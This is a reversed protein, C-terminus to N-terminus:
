EYLTSYDGEATAAGPKVQKGYPFAVLDEATLGELIEVYSGWLDKGTRVTRKELKGDAGRIYVFATGNEKRLFPNQLYVGHEGTGASYLVSVYRGEQLDASEDVFVRFPYYSANPNGMGNYYGDSTPFDGISDVIGVYTMGTNWDNVTVEQGLILNDKELESVFGEVYFGGGGSVKLIPQLTAKAEDETLLSVVEGDIQAYVNGDGAETQAIKYNAEAMKIDFELQTIKKKQDDRMQAIQAATFGSGFDIGTNVSSDEEGGGLTHDGILTDAFRFQFGSGKGSFRLCQWTTKTALERDGSTIKIVVYFSHVEFPTYGSGAGEEPVEEGNEAEQEAKAQANENQFVEAHYRVEEVIADKLDMGSHLWLIMAKEPASGDYEREHSIEYEGPGLQRGLSEDSEEEESPTYIVMPKMANIRRLEKEADSLQLKLKEVELRKKELALDSLTTDFTMLIDGKKVMDGQQVLVETVTQTDTLFVTQIKDTFVPGYSEQSDGWYETMGVMSFPYVYVPETNRNAYWYWGGAAGAAILVLVLAIWIGKKLGKKRKNAM